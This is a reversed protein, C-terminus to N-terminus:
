KKYVFIGGIDTFEFLSTVRLLSESAGLFLFGPKNLSLHFNQAVGQVAEQSFYIFVNRCFIIDFNGMQSIANGEKLNLYSFQVRPRISDALRYSGDSNGSFYRQKIEAPINRFSRDRYVGSRAQDLAWMDFDTGIIEIPGQLFCGTETLSIAMTYPEEGSSCAAHWIRIAKGPREKQLQPVILEVCAKLQDYERWFYTEKVSLASGLRRWETVPDEGYKLLYYYDMFSDFGSELVLPLLKSTMLEQQDNKYFIGTHAHILDRILEFVKEPLSLCNLEFTM